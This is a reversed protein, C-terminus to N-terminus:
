FDTGFWDVEIYFLFYAPYILCLMTFLFQIYFFLERLIYNSRLTLTVMLAWFVLKQMSLVIIQVYIFYFIPM